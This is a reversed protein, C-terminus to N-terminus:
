KSRKATANTNGGKGKGNDKTSGGKSKRTMTSMEDETLTRSVSCKNQLVKVFKGNRLVNFALIEGKENAVRPTLTVKHTQLGNKYSAKSM